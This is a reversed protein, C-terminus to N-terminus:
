LIKKKIYNEPNPTKIMDLSYEPENEGYADQLGQMSLTYLVQDEVIAEVPEITVIVQSGPPIQIPEKLMLHRSDIVQAKISYEM